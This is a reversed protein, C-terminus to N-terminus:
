EETVAEVRFPFSKYGPYGSYPDLYDHAMLYSTNAQENGHYMHVAGPHVTATCHVTATISGSPTTVRARGGDTLGYQAADQPHIDLLDTPELEALWRMRYTRTHMYQPRRAGTNMLLPYEPGCYQPFLQACSRYSPLPDLGYEKAYRAVVSSVLEVKGSPTPFGTERYKKERYPPLTNKTKMIGGHAQIEAVTLGTPELIYDMYAEYTMQLHPDQLGLARALDFLIQIDHRSEGPPEIAPPFCQVYGDAFLKVDSRELSSCAPLVIDAYRATETMFLDVAVFYDLKKLASLMYSSDPWMMHNMGVGVVAKVPYPKGEHIYQPLLMGQAQDPMFEAWVPFERHGIAPADFHFEGVYEAENSPTFGTVHLYGSPVVRNGGTVDYNGTLAALSVVARQNQVGNVHHVLPSASTLLAAPRAGAYMRAAKAMLAGPVTTLEEVREPTYEAALAAFEAFGAVYNDVFERDYLGEQIIVNAMGLALAGDTGPRPQLHLAAKQAFSTKRSDVVIFPKGQEMLDYFHRNNDMNSYFPNRTWVLVLEANAVDAGAIGGFVLWWALKHAEQCTSGETMYNPSGFSGSLRQLVPRYWKSFGAHFCVSQPGFEAKYGNLKEAIEAYAEEWSIPRFQGSGKEGVRKMPHLVRDQSYVYQRIAAGRPCLRGKSHPNDASGEVHVIRGDPVWADIGCHSYANCIGCCTKKVTVGPEPTHNTETM